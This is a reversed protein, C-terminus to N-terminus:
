APRGQPLRWETIRFKFFSDAETQLLEEVNSYLKDFNEAETTINGIISRGGNLASKRHYYDRKM